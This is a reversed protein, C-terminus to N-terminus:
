DDGMSEGLVWDTVLAARCVNPEVPYKYAFSWKVHESSIVEKQQQCHNVSMNECKKKTMTNIIVRGKFYLLVGNFGSRWNKKKFIHM